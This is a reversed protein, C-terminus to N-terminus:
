FDEIHANIYVRIYEPISPLNNYASDFADFNYRDYLRSFEEVDDTIFVSLDSLDVNNDALVSQLLALHENAGIKELADCVYPASFDGENCFFQVMGGNLVELEMAAATYVVKQSENLNHFDEAGLSMLLSVIMENDPLNLMDSTEMSVNHLFACSAFSLIIFLSVIICLFNKM